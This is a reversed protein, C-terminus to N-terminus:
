LRKTLCCDYVIALSTGLSNGGGTKSRNCYALIPLGPLLFWMCSILCVHPLRTGVGHVRAERHPHPRPVLSSMCSFLRSPTTGSSSDYPGEQLIKVLFMLSYCKFSCWYLKNNLLNLASWHLTQSNCCDPVMGWTGEHRGSTMCMFREGLDEGEMKAYLLVPSPYPMGFHVFDDVIKMTLVLELKM